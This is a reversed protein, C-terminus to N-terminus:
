FHSITWSGLHGRNLSFFIFDAMVVAAFAKGTEVTSFGYTSFLTSPEEGLHGWDTKGCAGGSGAITHGELLQEKRHGPLETTSVSTGVAM